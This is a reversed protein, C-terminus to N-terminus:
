LLAQSCRCQLFVSLYDLCMSKTCVFSSDAEPRSKGNGAVHRDSCLSPADVISAFLCLIVIVFERLRHMNVQLVISGFKM